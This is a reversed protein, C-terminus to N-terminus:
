AKTKAALHNQLIRRARSLHGRAYGDMWAETCPVCYALDVRLDNLCAGPEDEPFDQDSLWRDFANAASDFDTDAALVADIRLVIDTVSEPTMPTENPGIDTM